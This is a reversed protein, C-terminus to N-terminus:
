TNKKRLKFAMKLQQKHHHTTKKGGKQKTNKMEKQRAWVRLGKDQAATDVYESHFGLFGGGAVPVYCKM